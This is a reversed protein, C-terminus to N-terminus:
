LRGQLPLVRRAVFVALLDPGTLGESQTLVQLRAIAGAEAPTLSMARYSWNPLRGAPPGAEFAPLNVWDGRTAVNRVYFYSRQWMKVSKILSISPFPNDAGSRRVAIFAGCQAPVGAAQTGLKSFFFEGWLELTPLVGLFGECLAVFASLLVVTNPTLPHPQLSYLELFSRFFSSAPLGLGRLCPSCFIVRAGEQPAPSIEGAPALRVQVRDEGPLRRPRRLFEIHDELVESGDWTGSRV